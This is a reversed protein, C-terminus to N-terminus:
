ALGTSHIHSARAQRRYLRVHTLNHGFHLRIRRGGLPRLAIRCLFHKASTEAQLELPSRYMDTAGGKWDELFFESGMGGEERWVFDALM